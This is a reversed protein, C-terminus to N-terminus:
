KAREKTLRSMALLLEPTNEFVYVKLEPYNPNIDTRLLRFGQSRLAFALWRTYIAKENM